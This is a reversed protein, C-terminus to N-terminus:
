QKLYKAFFQKLRNDSDKAATKDYTPLWRMDFTHGVGPYIKLQYEVDGKRTVKMDKCTAIPDM